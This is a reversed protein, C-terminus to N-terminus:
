SCFNWGLAGYRTRHDAAKRLDHRSLPHCLIQLDFQGGEAVRALDSFSSVHVLFRTEGSDM